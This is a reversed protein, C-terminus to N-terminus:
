KLRMDGALDGKMKWNMNRHNTAEQVPEFEQLTKCSGRDWIRDFLFVLPSPKQLDVSLCCFFGEVSSSEELSDWHGESCWSWSGQCFVNEEKGKGSIILSGLVRCSYKLRAWSNLNARHHAGEPAVVGQWTKSLTRCFWLREGRWWCSTM